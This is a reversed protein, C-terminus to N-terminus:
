QNINILWNVKLPAYFISLFYTILSSEPQQSLCMYMCGYIVCMYMCVDCVGWSCGSLPFIIKFQLQLSKLGYHAPKMTKALHPMTFIRLLPFCLLSHSPLATPFCCLCCIYGRSCAWQGGHESYHEKYGRGVEPGPHRFASHQPRGELTQELSM